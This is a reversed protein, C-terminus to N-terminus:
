SKVLGSLGGVWLTTLTWGAIIHFWLYFRLVSGSIPFARPGLRFSGTRNANPRWFESVGLKLFPVFTELSYVFANFKPYLQAFPPKGYKQNAYAKEDSPTVVEGDFGAKFLGAGFIIVGLSIWLARMPRYGYGIIPGFINFWLWDKMLDRTASVHRAQDRNKAIMVQKQDEEFGMNKLVTALREYPQPFFRDPTQRHLWGLQTRANPYSEREIRDYDFGDIALNGQLPWSKPDDYITGVKTFRLDLTAKEPLNVERWELNHAIFAHSFSVKGEATIKQRFYVGGEIKAGNASFAPIDGKAIYYGGSCDIDGGVAAGDLRVGGEARFIKHTELDSSLAVNGRIASNSLDLALIKTFSTFQGGQCTVFQGITTGDLSVGGQAKFGEALIVPGEIKAGRASLAPLNNESAFNGGMCDLTGAIKANVLSV